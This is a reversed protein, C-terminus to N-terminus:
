EKIGDPAEQPTRPTSQIGLVMICLRNNPLSEFSIVRASTLSMSVSGFRLAFGVDTLELLMRMLMMYDCMSPGRVTVRITNVSVFYPDDDSQAHYHTVGMFPTGNLM